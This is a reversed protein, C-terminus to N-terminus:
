PWLGAAHRFAFVDMLAGLYWHLLLPWLSSGTALAAAGFLFGAPAAGLTEGLPKGIHVLTSIATEFALAGGAGFRDRLGFLLAGRFYAEWGVYYLLYTLEWLVWSGASEGALKTLPYERQFAPDFSSAYVVPTVLLAGFLVLRVGLRADGTRIGLAAPPLGFGWRLVALPVMGLLVLANVHYYLFRYWDLYPDDALAQGWTRVFFAPSGVYLWLVVLVLTGLCLFWERGGLDRLAARLAGVVDSV